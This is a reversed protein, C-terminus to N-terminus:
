PAAGNTSLMTASVAVVSSSTRAASSACRSTPQSSTSSNGHADSRLWSSSAASASYRPRGPPGAMLTTSTLPALLPIPRSEASANARAPWLTAAPALDGPRGASIAWTAAASDSRKRTTWSSTV